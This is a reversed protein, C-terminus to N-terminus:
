EKPPCEMDAPQAVEGFDFRAETQWIVGLLPLVRYM